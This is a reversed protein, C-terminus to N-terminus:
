QIVNRVHISLGGKSQFTSWVLFQLGLIGPDRIEPNDANWDRSKPIVFHLLFQVKQTNNVSICIKAAQYIFYKIYALTSSRAICQLIYKLRWQRPGITRIYMGYSGISCVIWSILWIPIGFHRGNQLGLGSVSDQSGTKKLNRLGSHRSQPPILIVVGYKYTVYM